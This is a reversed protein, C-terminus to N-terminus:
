KKLSVSYGAQGASLYGAVEEKNNRPAPIFGASLIAESAM